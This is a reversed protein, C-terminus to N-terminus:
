NHEEGKLFDKVWKPQGNVIEIDSEWPMLYNEIMKISESGNGQWYFGNGYDSYIEVEELDIINNPIKWTESKKDLNRCYDIPSYYEDQINYCEKPTCIFPILVGTSGEYCGYYINGTNKFKILAFAASMYEGKLDYTKNIM